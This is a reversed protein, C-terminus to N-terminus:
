TKVRAIKVVQMKETLTLGYNRHLDHRFDEFNNLNLHLIFANKLKTDNFVLVGFRQEILKALEDMLVPAVIEWGSELKEKPVFHDEEKHM